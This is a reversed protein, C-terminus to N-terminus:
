WDPHELRERRITRLLSLGYDIAHREHHGNDSQQLQRLRELILAEARLAKEPLKKSDFELLVEQLPGQWEPYQLGTNEMIVGVLANDRKGREGL